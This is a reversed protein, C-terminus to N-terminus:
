LGADIALPIGGFAALDLPAHTHQLALALVTLDVLDIALRPLFLMAGTRRVAYSVGLDVALFCAIIATWPSARGVGLPHILAYLHSGGDFGLIAFPVRRVWCRETPSLEGTRRFM